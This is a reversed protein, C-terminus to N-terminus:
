ELMPKVLLLLENTIIGAAVGGVALLVPRGGQIVRIDTLTTKWYRESWAMAPPLLGFLVLVGYTGALDLASFFVDPYALALAYPPLLTLAYAPARANRLNFIDAFFDSLGLVFGIFSTAIALLSFVEILPGVAESKQRLLLVPDLDQAGAVV